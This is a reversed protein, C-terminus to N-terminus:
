LIWYGVCSCVGDTDGDAVGMGVALRQLQLQLWRGGGHYGALDVVVSLMEEM